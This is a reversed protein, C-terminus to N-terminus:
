EYCALQNEMWFIRGGFNRRKKTAIEASVV